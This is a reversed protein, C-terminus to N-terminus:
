RDSNFYRDAIAQYIAQDEASAVPAKAHEAQSRQDTSLTRGPKSRGGDIQGFVRLQLQQPHKDAKTM